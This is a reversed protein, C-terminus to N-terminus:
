KRRRRLGILSALGGLLLAASGPEPVAAFAVQYSDGVETFSATYNTTDYGTIASFNFGSTSVNDFVTYSNGYSFGPGGVNLSLTSGAGGSLWDGLTSFSVLDTATGLNVAFTSGPAFDLKAGSGLSATLTGAGTGGLALTGGSLINVNGGTATGLTAAADTALVASVDVSSTGSLGGAVVLTGGSVITSGTFTEVANLTLAGSGAKTLSLKGTITGDFSTVSAENVTFMRTTTADSNTITGGTGSLASVTQDNSTGVNNFDLTGGTVTLATTSPLAGAAGLRTTGRQIATPGSYTNAGSLTLVAQGDMIIGSAATESIPGLTLDVSSTFGIGFTNPAFTANGGTLTVTNFAIVQANGINRNPGLIQGGGMKLNGLSTIAGVPASSPSNLVVLGTGSLELDNGFVTNGTSNNRYVVDSYTGALAAGSTGAAAVIKGTGLPSFPGAVTTRIEFKAGQAVNITGSYTSANTGILRFGPRGDPTAASTGPQVTLNGSGALVGSLNIDTESTLNLPDAVIVTSNASATLTGALTVAARTGLTGGNLTIANTHSAGAIFTGGPAVTTTGTGPGAVATAIVYGSNVNLGGSFTSAGALTLKGNGVKTLGFAGSIAGGISIDGIGGVSSDSGLVVSSLIPTITANGLTFTPASTFATGSATVSVNNVQFLVAGTLVAATTAGGGTLTFTPATSFGTGPNTITLGTVTGTTGGSLTVTATAGAGGGATIAVTPVSTYGVGANTITYSSTSVGLNAVAAAGTGGGGAITVVTTAATTGPASVSASALNGELIATTGATSNVLAGNGGVGNGNLTIVENIGTTGALDLTAGSAITTGQNSSGTFTAAQTTSLGGFGLAMRNGIQLTGTSVTTLGAYSNAGSLTWTGTGTEKFVPLQFTTGDSIVGTAAGNGNGRLRLDRATATPTIAGTLTLSGANSIITGGGGGSTISIAGRITNNGSDNAIANSNGNLTNSISLTVNAPLDIGASPTNGLSPDLHLQVDGATGATIAIAKLGLGLSTSSTATLWGSNINVAGTFTNDGTLILPASNTGPTSYGKTLAGTGSIVSSLTTSTSGLLGTDIVGAGTLVVPRAASIAFSNQYQLTGGNFTIPAGAVGLNADASVNLAGTTLLTNTQSNNGTLRIVGAAVKNLTFSTSGAANSTGINGSILAAGAGTIAGTNGISADGMLTIPGSLTPTIAATSNLRLVGSRTAGENFGTGIIVFPNAITVNQNLFVQGDANGDVYVIANPGVGFPTTIGATIGQLRGGTVYTPGTYTNNAALGIIGGTATANPNGRYTVTTPNAGNDALVSSVVAQTNPKNIILVLEGGAGPQISGGAITTIGSTGNGILIGGTNITNTGALTLTLAGTNLRISDVTSGSNATFAGTIDAHGTFTAASNAATYISTGGAGAASASVINNASDTSNAAWDNGGVTAYATGTASTVLTGAAPTGGVIIGNTASQTGAPLTYDVTGGVNRTLAGLNLAVTGGAGITAGVANAGAHVLTSAFTQSNTGGAFGTFAIAGGGVLNNASGGLTLATAPAFINTAGVNGFNAAVTSLTAPNSTTSLLGQSINLATVGSTQATAALTLTGPGQKSFTAGALTGNQVTGGGNTSFNSITQNNLDLVGANLVVSATPAPAQSLFLTGAGTKTLTGNRVLSSVTTDIAVTTSDGINFSRNGGGLDLTAVSITAGLPNNTATYTVGGNITLLSGVGGTVTGANTVAAGSFAIATGTGSLTNLTQSNTGLDFVATPSAAVNAIQIGQLNTLPIVNNAGAALTGGTVQTIGSYTSGTGSITWTSTNAKIIRTYGGLLPNFFSGGIADSVNGLVSNGTSTGDLALTDFNTTGFNIMSNTVNGLITVSTTSPVFTTTQGTGTPLVVNTFSLKYGNSGTFSTSNAVVTPSFTGLAVTNGTNAGGNGGVNIVGTASTPSVANGYALIGNSGAGDDLISLTGAANLTVASNAPLSHGTFVLAGTGISTPGAYSNGSNSLTLSGAGTQSLGGPGTIAGSLTQPNASTVVLTGSNINTPGSYSLAGTLAITSVGANINLTGNGTIPQALTRPASLVTATSPAGVNNLSLTGNNTIPSAFSTITLANGDYMNLTTGLGITTAGSYNIGVVGATNTLTLNTTGTLTIGVSGTSGNRIIGDYTTTSNGNITLISAGAASNNQILSASGLPNPTTALSAITENFGMLNFAASQGSVSGGNLTIAATDAIQDSAGLQLNGINHGGVTINGIVTTNSAALNSLTLTSNFGVLTNGTYTNSGTLTLVSTALATGTVTLASGGNDVISSAITLPKTNMFVWLDKGAPAQLNGGTITGSTAATQVLIGGSEITNTGALTVINAGTGFALSQTVSDAAPATAATIQTNLGSGFTNASYTTAAVAGAGAAAFDNSNLIGGILIPTTSGIVNGAGSPANTFVVPLNTNTINLVGGISRAYPNAGSFTLTAAAGTAASGSITSLGAALNLTTFSQSNAATSGRVISVNGGGGAAGGLTLPAATNIRNAVGNAATADGINITGSGAVTLATANTLRGNLGNLNMGGESITVSGTFTNAANLGITGAGVKNINATGSVVGSMTLTAAATTAGFTTDGALTIAGTAAGGAASAYLAGRGGFGAGSLTLPEAGISVGRTDISAGSLVTTGATAAGFPSTGAAGTTLLGEAVVIAGTFGSFNSGGGLSLSGTGTKTLTGTGQLQAAATTFPTGGVTGDDLTLTRGLTVDFAAGGTGVNFVVGAAVNAATPVNDNFDNTTVRFVAGNSLLVQKYGFGNGTGLQSTTTTAGQTYVLTSGDVVINGRFTNAATLSVTAGGNIILGTTGFQTGGSIVGSVTTAGPGSITLAANSALVIPANVTLLGSGANGISTSANAILPAALTTATTVASTVSIGGNGVGFIIGSANNSGYLSVAANEEFTLSNAFIPIPGWLVVNGATANTGASFHLDNITGTGLQFIGAAGGTADTNWFSDIGWIGTTAGSGTTVGNTDWYLDNAAQARHGASLLTILTFASTLRAISSNLPRFFPRLHPRM